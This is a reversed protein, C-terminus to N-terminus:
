LSPVAKLIDRARNLQDLLIQFSPFNDDHELIIGKVPSRKCVYQVLKWVEEPVSESHSDILTKGEWFGGAIHLQVVNELPFKDIYETPDWDHNMSNTYVNTVDLLIGCKTKEALESFFQPESIEPFPLQFIYTINELVLPLGLTKVVEKTKKVVVKLQEKTMWVPTLHGISVGPVKTFCLHESYYPPNVIEIVSQVKHIYATDLPMDTGISLEIGHPIVTFGKSLKLLEDAKEQSADTYHETIVELFDINKQNAWIGGSIQRRYGIGAGISPLKKIWNNM